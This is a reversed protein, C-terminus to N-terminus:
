KYITIYKRIMKEGYARHFFSFFYSMKKGFFSRGNLMPRASLLWEFVQEIVNLHICVSKM